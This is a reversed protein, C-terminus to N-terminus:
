PKSLFASIVVFKRTTKKNEPATKQTSEPSARSLKEYPVTRIEDITTENLGLLEATKQGFAQRHKKESKKKAKREM